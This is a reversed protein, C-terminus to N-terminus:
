FGNRLNKILLSIYLCRDNFYKVGKKEEGGELKQTHGEVKESWSFDAVYM